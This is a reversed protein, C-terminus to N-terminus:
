ETAAETELLLDGPKLIDGQLEATRGKCPLSKVVHGDLEKPVSIKVEMKMSELMCFVDGAKLVDGVKCVYSLCEGPVVTPYEHPNGVAAKRPGSSATAAVNANPDATAVQVAQGLELYNCTIDGSATRGFGTFEVQTRENPNGADTLLEFRTGVPLALPEGHLVHPALLLPTLDSSAGKAQFDVFKQGNAQYGLINHRQAVNYDAPLDSPQIVQAGQALAADLEDKMNALLMDVEAPKGVLTEWRKLGVLVDGGVKLKGGENVWARVAEVSKPQLAPEIMIAIGLRLKYESFPTVARELPFVESAVEKAHNILRPDLDFEKAIRIDSGETGGAWDSDWPTMQSTRSDFRCLVQEIQQQNHNYEALADKQEATLTMASVLATNDNHTGNKRYAADIVLNNFGAAQATRLLEAGAHGGMGSFDHNHIYVIPLHKGRDAFVANIAQVHTWISEPTWDLGQGPNKIRVCHLERGHKEFLDIQRGTWKTLAALPFKASFVWNPMPNTGAALLEDTTEDQPSYGTSEDVYNGAHFNYPHWAVSGAGTATSGYHGSVLDATTEFLSTRVSSPLEALGNVYQSRQLSHAPMNYPLGLRLITAPDFGRILGAQYQAGGTEYGVCGAQQGFIEANRRGISSVAASESDNGQQATDRPAVTVWAGGQTELQGRLEGIYDEYSSEGRAYRTYETEAPTMDKLSAHISEVSATVTKTPWRDADIGEGPRYGSVLIPTV